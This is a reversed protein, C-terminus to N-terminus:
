LQYKLYLWKEKDIKRKSNQVYILVEPLYKINAIRFLDFWEEFFLSEIKAYVMGSFFSRDTVVCSKNDLLLEVLRKNHISRNAMMLMERAMGTMEKNETLALSRLSKLVETEGNPEYTWFAGIRQSFAKSLLTKGTGENGEFAWYRLAQM